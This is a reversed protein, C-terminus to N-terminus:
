GCELIEVGSRLIYRGHWGGDHEEREMDIQLGLGRLVYVYHAFRYAWSVVDLSTCGREGAAALAVLARATQGEVKFTRGSSLVRFIVQTTRM